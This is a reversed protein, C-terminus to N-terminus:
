THPCYGCRLNCREDLTLTMQAISRSYDDARDRGSRRAIMRLRQPRFLGLEDRARAIELAAASGGAGDWPDGAFAELREAILPSM